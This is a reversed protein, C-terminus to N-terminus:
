PQMERLACGADGGWGWLGFERYCVM